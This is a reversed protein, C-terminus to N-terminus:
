KEPAGARYLIRDIAVFLNGIENLNIGSVNSTM